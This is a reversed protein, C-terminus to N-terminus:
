VIRVAPGQPGHREGVGRGRRTGRRDVGAGADRVPDRLLSELKAADFGTVSAVLHALDGADIGDLAGLVAQALEAVDIRSLLEKAGDLLKLLAAEAKQEGIHVLTGPPLGLKKSRRHGSARRAM